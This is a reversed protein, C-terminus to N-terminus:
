SVYKRSEEEYAKGEVYLSPSSTLKEAGARDYKLHILCLVKMEIVIKV